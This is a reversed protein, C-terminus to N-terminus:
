RAYLVSKVYVLITLINNKWLISSASINVADWKGKHKAIMDKWRKMAEVHMITEITSGCKYYVETEAEKLCRLM